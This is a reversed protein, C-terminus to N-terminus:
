AERLTYGRGRLADMIRMELVTIEAGELTRESSGFVLHFAMSKKGEGLGASRFVDFVDVSLLLDGGAARILEMVEKSTTREPVVVAVDFPVVPYRSPPRYEIPRRPGELLGDFDLDFAIVDGRLELKAEYEPHVRYIFGREKGSALVAACVAPHAWPPLSGAPPATEPSAIRLDECLGLVIGRAEFFNEPRKEEFSLLGACRTREEPLERSRLAEKPKRYTRGTEFFGFLRKYRQNERAKELHVPVIERRMRDMDESVPNVLRLHAEPDLGFLRCHAQGVMAYTYVETLGAHLTLFDKVRRELRRHENPPPAEIPRSPPFPQISGYGHIRGVEEVLDERMSIDKTARWSPVRVTWEGDAPGACAFGLRELSGKVEASPIETGLRRTIFSASTSIEIPKAAEYGVDQLQGTVRAGPCLDLIRRAARLIGIRANEPDLSKEFRLSSDTRKGVRVSTRRVRAPAFNASELFISTTSESIESRAGGMIGALAVPGRGDAIVLDEPDLPVVTGDLLDLSEGPAARRVRIGGEVRAADFAHLPQGLEFLIYNTVDVINSIPRSGVALLRSALAPPSPGIRVGDIRLGCYRRCLGERGGVGAGEVTVRIGPDGPARALSEDVALPALPARYIASFERAIGHHGWLDPRHTLSKNDIELAADALDPFLQSLPTGPETGAPLEWLGAGQESVGLEKESLLMGASLVGRVPTRAIQRGGISTGPPAWPALLGERVNPAGCVVEAEGRDGAAIRVVTLRDAEPHRRVELVRAAVSAALEPRSEIVNEVEATHLSLRAGIQLPTEATEFACFERIWRLSILM